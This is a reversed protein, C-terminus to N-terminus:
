KGCVSRRGTSDAFCGLRRLPFFMHAGHQKVLVLEEDVRHVAAAQLSKGLIRLQQRQQFGEDGLVSGQCVGRGGLQARFLDLLQLLHTKPSATHLYTRMHWTHAYTMM